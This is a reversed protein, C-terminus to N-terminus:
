PTDEPHILKLGVESPMRRWDIVITCVRYDTDADHSITWADDPLEALLDDLRESISSVATM